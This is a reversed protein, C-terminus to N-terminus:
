FINTIAPLRARRLYRFNIFSSFLYELLKVLGTGDQSLLLGEALKSFPPETM